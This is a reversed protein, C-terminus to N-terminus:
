EDFFNKYVEEEGYKDLLRCIRKPHVAKMYIEEAINEFRRKMSNYDIKFIGKNEGITGFWILNPYRKLYEIAFENKSLSVRYLSIQEITYNKFLYDMAEKSKNQVFKDMKIKKISTKNALLLKVAIPNSSLLKWDLYKKKGNFLELVEPNSNASLGKYDIKDKNNKLLKIASPNGSLNYWDILEMNNELYEIAKVNINRSFNKWVIKDKNKLLYDVAEDASNESFLKWDIKNINNERLLFNVVNPNTNQSISQFSYDIKYKTMFDYSLPNKSLSHIICMYIYDVKKNNNCINSLIMNIFNVRYNMSKDKLFYSDM